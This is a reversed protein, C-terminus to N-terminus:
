KRKLLKLNHSLRVIAIMLHSRNQNVEKLNLVKKILMKFLNSMEIITRAWEMCDKLNRPIMPIAKKKNNVKNNKNKLKIKSILVNIRKSQNNKKKKQVQVQVKEEKKNIWKKKCNGYKLEEKQLKLKYGRLSKVRRKWDVKKIEM